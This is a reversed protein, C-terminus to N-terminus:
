KKTRELMDLGQVVLCVVTIYPAIVAGSIGLAARTSLPLASGFIRKSLREGVAQAAFTGSSTVAAVVGGTIASEKADAGSSLMLAGTCPFTLKAVNFPTISRLFSYYINM